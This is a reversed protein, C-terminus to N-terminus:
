QLSVVFNIIKVQKGFFGGITITRIKLWDDIVLRWSPCMLSWKERPLQLVKPLSGSPRWTTERCCCSLIGFGGVSSPRFSLLM